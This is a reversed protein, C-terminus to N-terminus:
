KNSFNQSKFKQLVLEIFEQSIESFRAVHKVVKSGKSIKLKKKKDCNRESELSKETSVKKKLNERYFEFLEGLIKRSWVESDM